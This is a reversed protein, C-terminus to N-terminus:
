INNHIQLLEYLFKNNNTMNQYNEKHKGNANFAPQNSINRTQTQSSASQSQCISAEASEIKAISEQFKSFYIM